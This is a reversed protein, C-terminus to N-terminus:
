KKVELTYGGGWGYQDGDAEPMNFVYTKGADFGSEWAKAEAMSLGDGNPWHTPAEVTPM